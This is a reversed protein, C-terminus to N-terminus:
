SYDRALCVKALIGIKKLRCMVFFPSSCRNDDGVDILVDLM